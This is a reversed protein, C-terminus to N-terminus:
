EDIPREGPRALSPAATLSTKTVCDISASSGIRPAVTAFSRASAPRQSSSITMASRM